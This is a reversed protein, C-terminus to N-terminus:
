GDNLCKTAFREVGSHKWCRQRQRRSRWYCFPCCDRWYNDKEKKIQSFIFKGLPLFIKAEERKAAAKEKQKEKALKAELQEIRMKRKQEPTLKQQTEM